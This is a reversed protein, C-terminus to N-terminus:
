SESVTRNKAWGRYLRRKTTAVQSLRKGIFDASDRAHYCIDAGCGDMWRCGFVAPCTGSQSDATDISWKDAISGDSASFIVCKRMREPKDDQSQRTPELCRFHPSFQLLNRSLKKEQVATLIKTIEFRLPKRTSHLHRGASSYLKSAHRSFLACILDNFKTTHLAKLLINLVREDSITM